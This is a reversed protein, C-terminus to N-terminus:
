VVPAQGVGKVWHQGLAHAFARLKGVTGHARQKFRHATVRDHWQEPPGKVHMRAGKPLPKIVGRGSQATWRVLAQYSALTMGLTALDGLNCNTQTEIRHSLSTHLAQEPEDVMQARIPNLDVYIMGTVVSSNELLLKSDFRGQWFRGSCGDEKNSQRAIPENIYRMFWSLCSLRKRLEKLRVPDSLAACIRKDRTEEDPCKCARFWRSAVEEDSWLVVRDPNTKVVVHYHNSMVTYSFLEIAFLASLEIIRAEIWAKRHEFSQGTVPDLGCLWARRVCRSACMYFGSVAPNVTHARAYTM